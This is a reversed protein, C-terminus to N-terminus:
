RPELLDRIVQRATKLAEPLLDVNRGGAQAMDPRGGGGGGAAQATAKVITGAHAGAAVADKSAMVLFNLKGDAQRALVVVSPEMRSRLDDGLERLQDIDSAEVEAVVVNIGNIVEAQDTLGATQERAQASVLNQLERSLERNERVLNNVRGELETPQSKLIGSLDRVLEREEVALELAQRGTVAEVRRVGAAVSAESLLRFSGAQSTHKLHTGGCLEMSFDGCSVVRVADGYKEDFLAMAGADKADSVSMLRTTVEYDELIAENVEQEIQDLEETSLSSFHNFDFRLREANVESGAQTVHEGLVDRLAKHLLHTATHNRATALRNTKDVEMSVEDGAKLVGREVVGQHLYIGGATKTVSEIKADVDTGQSLTGFDAAQGGGQAYFPTRDTVLLFHDGEGLSDVTRLENTEPDESVLYLLKADGSLTDYGTFETKPANNLEEPLALGGWATKVNQRTNEQARRRQEEMLRGFGAEDVTLGVEAAIEKTLDVPFGYTDHLRFVDAADLESVGQAEAKAMYDALLHNGQTLTRDFTSEENRITNMIFAEHEVLEPYADGSQAIVEEAIDTLFPGEIGLQRGNRVARRMLRRLVYGRGSNSPTIGDAVMMVTSRIHDTIIRISIDTKRNEGYKVKALACVKDLISRITDIEFFGVDQCISALRELGVGTDINKQSLQVYSGDELRDFQTFVSNWFEVFRDCECGPACDVNGCGYKEGRDYYVESSPGCPGTGHEWFNDEKGFRYIREEPVGVKDRWINYAEDDEEYVSPYMRDPELKLVETCFEWIWPIMEAKFYDGFSFNGLMEFFTGHRDTYGVNEIDGTRICKQCNTIRKAPPKESGTFYPKMPTMGANVLLISPDNKPVLSFSPLRLHGKEEFFKLYMERIENLGFKVM